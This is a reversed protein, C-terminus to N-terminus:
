LQLEISLLSTIGIVILKGLTAGPETYTQSLPQTGRYRWSLENKDTLELKYTYLKVADDLQTLTQEAFAKNHVFVGLESNLKISRPDMNLSGVFVREEDIIVLKTHLVVKNAKQENGQNAIALSDARVENLQVGSALLDKRHRRYGAHTYVHNTSAISNTIIRVTVGREALDSFLRAGYDEPVFYPTLVVVSRKADRIQKLLDEALIRTGGNVPMKLKDPIDTVVDVKGNFVTGASLSLDKFFPDNVARDYIKRALGLDEFLEKRHEALVDASPPKRLTALPVAWKDNWFLDFTKAIEAVAPGTIVLDFDAFEDTPNIEFYEDAINRGGVISFLGDATFSKNHMRRNVRKFDTVFGLSKAGPRPAPNFIRVSVGPHADLLALDQDKVTTFVDDLLLRVRVGRDAAKLLAVTVVVGANDPKMLFYQLDLTEKAQEILGLRAGLAQNGTDLPIVANTNQGAGGKLQASLQSMQANDARTAHSAAKPQDFPVPSCGSLVLAGLVALVALTRFFLDPQNGTRM